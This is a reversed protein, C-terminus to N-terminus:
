DLPSKLTDLYSLTDSVATSVRRYVRRKISPEPIVVPEVKIHWHQAMVARERDTTGAWFGQLGKEIAQRLCMAEVPCADCIKKAQTSKGGSSPFFIKDAEQPSLSRCAGNNNLSLAPVPIM